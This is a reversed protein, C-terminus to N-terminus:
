NLHEAPWVNGVHRISLDPTQPLEDTDDMIM